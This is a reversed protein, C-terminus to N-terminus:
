LNYASAANPLCIGLMRRPPHPEAQKIVAVPSKVALVALSVTGEAPICLFYIAFMSGTCLALM